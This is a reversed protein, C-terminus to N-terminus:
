SAGSGLCVFGASAARARPDGDTLEQQAGALAAAAPEGRALRRHLEVMLPATPADPVPVVTGILQATGRALLTAGLGLLENGTRVAARGSECAALVVTRPTRALRELDYVVLPGDALLISSFLPNDARLRGHAALHIVGASSMSALVRDVSASAGTVAETRYLRAVAHAEDQAGPLRPGAVVTPRAGPDAVTRSSSAWLTASPSVTVPRARCSPLVSWPLSHLPGTAVLVLPRGGLETLPGLLLDDLRAAATTLLAGAAAAVEPRGKPRALRQLAFPLRETLDAITALSGLLHLRVQGAVVTLAHLTGDLEIFEVLAWEGLAAALEGVGVPRLAPAGANGPSRRAHDRVQRELGAQRRTVAASSGGAPLSELERGVARLESLLRALEPDDPPRVSHHLLSAARGRESWEFVDAPSDNEFSLRLGFEALERRHLAAHVRLDVAGLAASHSSLLDLGARAALLAGNQDQRARRLLARAYWARARLVAPGSGRVAAGAQELLAQGQEPQRAGATAAALLRAEMAAAPWGARTLTDVMAAIASTSIRQRAPSSSARLTELRALAAWEPRHQRRFSRLAWGAQTAALERDGALFAARSLLLRAEPVKVLRRERQYARVARDAETRAEALLGVSLLLESRDQYLTGLQAGHAAIIQEARDFHALAAPVDGRLSEMTGLNNAVLGITLDRGLQRALEEAELLDQEAATFAHRDSHVLARNILMRQVGLQDEAARMLPLAVEYEALSEDLRGIVHLIIARQARGRGAAAGRLDTLAADIETLAALPRGRQLVAFALKLRAQAVLAPSGARLGCEVARRLHRIADDVEGCHLLAHGWAREAISGAQPDRRRHAQRAAREAPLLGQGPDRDAIREAREAAALASIDNAQHM